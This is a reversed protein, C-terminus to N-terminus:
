LREFNLFRESEEVKDEDMLKIVNEDFEIVNWDDELMVFPDTEGFKLVLNIRGDDEPKSTWTGDIQSSGNSALASGDANFVFTYGDFISSEEEDTSFYSIVWEGTILSNTFGSNETDEGDEEDEDDKYEPNDNEDCDDRANEILTELESNSNVEMESADSLIMIIPFDISVLDSEELNDLFRYLEEDDKFTVTKAVESSTNYVSFSLPYKFDVCEIDEDEGNEVCDETINELENSNQITLKSHDPLEIEIPFLFSLANEDDDFEDFADEIKKFDEEAEIIIEEGNVFVTVPLVISTCSAKDLINDHSGDLISTLQMIDSVASGSIFSQDSPPNIIEEFESQCANLILSGLFLVLLTIRTNMIKLIM